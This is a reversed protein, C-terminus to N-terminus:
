ERRGLLGLRQKSGCSRSRNSLWECHLARTTASACSRAARPSARVRRCRCARARRSSERAGGAATLRLRTPPAARRARESAAADSARAPAACCSLADCGSARRRPLLRPAGRFALARHTNPTLFQTYLALRHLQRDIIAGRTTTRADADRAPVYGAVRRAATACRAGEGCAPCCNIRQPARALPAEATRRQWRAASVRWEGGM